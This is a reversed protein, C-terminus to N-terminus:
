WGAPLQPLNRPTRQAEWRIDMDGASALVGGRTMDTFRTQVAWGRTMSARWKHIEAHGDAFAVGCAGNHYTAPVDIWTALDPAFNGADNISDPHEDMFVWGEAPSPYLFESFKRIHKYVGVIPGTEANGAGVYINSSMSRVRSAWGRGRQVTSAFSDAPCKFVRTSKALYPGLKAYDEFTLLLTNTNDTSTGWDLWGSVWGNGWKVDGPPVPGTAQTGHTAVVMKDSYDHNYMQWGVMIQKLNNLCGIGQAKARAKTLAPLLMAALIAIIAIVVLLEIL